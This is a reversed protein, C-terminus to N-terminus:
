LKMINQFLIESIRKHNFILANIKPNQSFELTKKLYLFNFIFRERQNGIILPEIITLSCISILFPYTTQIFDTIIHPIESNDYDNLRAQTIQSQKSFLFTIVPKQKLWPSRDRKASLHTIKYYKMPFHDCLLKLTRTQPNFELPYYGNMIIEDQFTM